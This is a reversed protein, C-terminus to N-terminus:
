GFQIEKGKHRLLKNALKIELILMANLADQVERAALSENDLSAITRRASQVKQIDGGLNEPKISKKHPSVEHDTLNTSRSAMDDM